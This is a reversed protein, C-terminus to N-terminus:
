HLGCRSSWYKVVHRKTFLVCSHSTSYGYLKVESLALSTDFYSYWLRSVGSLVCYANLAHEGPFAALLPFSPCLDWKPTKLYPVFCSSIMLWKVKKQKVVSRELVQRVGSPTWTPLGRPCPSRLPSENVESAKCLWERPWSSGGRGVEQKIRYLVQTEVGARM